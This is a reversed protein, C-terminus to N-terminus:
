CSRSSQLNTMKKAKELAVVPVCEAYDESFADGRYRLCVSRPYDGKNKLLEVAISIIQNENLGNNM